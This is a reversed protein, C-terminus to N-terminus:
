TVEERDKIDEAAYSENSLLSQIFYKKKDLLKTAQFEV